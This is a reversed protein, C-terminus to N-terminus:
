RTGARWSEWSGLFDDMIGSQRNVLKSFLKDADIVGMRETEDELADIQAQIEQRKLGFHDDSKSYDADVSIEAEVLELFVEQMVMELSQQYGLRICFSDHIPLVVIDQEMMRLMVQEAVKSDIYQAHLGMGTALKEWILPHTRQFHDKFTTENVGLLAETDKPLRYVGDEDNILANVIKKVAKRRPDERGQWDPLGLDYPDVDPPLLKGLQASIIRIDVGSYDVEITKYGDIRIHPRHLGPIGQWWGGYFRGGKEMSGRAFVRRLQVDHLRLLKPDTDEEDDVENGDKDKRERMQRQLEELHQDSLDLHFCHQTLFRNIRELNERM